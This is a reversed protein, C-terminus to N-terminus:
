PTMGEILAAANQGLVEHNYAGELIAFSGSGNSQGSQLAMRGM